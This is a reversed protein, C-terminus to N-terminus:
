GRPTRASATAIGTPHGTGPRPSVPARRPGAARAATVAGTRPGRDVRRLGDVGGGLDADAVALGLPDAPDDRQAAERAPVVEAAVDHEGVGGQPRAGHETVREEGVVVLGRLVVEVDVGDEVRGISPTTRTSLWRPVSRDKSRSASAAGTGSPRSARTRGAATPVNTASTSRVTTTPPRRTPEAGRHSPAMPTSTLRGSRSPSSRRSGPPHVRGLAEALDVRAPGPRRRRRPGRRRRRRGARPAPAPSRGRGRVSATALAVEREASRHQGVVAVHQPRGAGVRGVAGGVVVVPLLEAATAERREVPGVPRHQGSAHERGPDRPPRAAHRHHRDAPPQGDQRAVARHVDDVGALGPSAAAVGGSAGVDSPM